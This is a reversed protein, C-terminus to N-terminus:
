HFVHVKHRPLSNVHNQSTAQETRKNISFLELFCPDKSMQYQSRSIYLLEFFQIVFYTFKTALHQIGIKMNLIRAGRKGGGGGGAYERVGFLKKRPLFVGYFM